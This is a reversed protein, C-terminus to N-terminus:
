RMHMGGAWHILQRSVRSAKEPPLIESDVHDVEVTAAM